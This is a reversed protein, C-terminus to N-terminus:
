KLKFTWGEPTFYLVGPIQKGSIFAAAKARYNGAGLGTLGSLFNVFHKRMDHCPCDEVRLLGNGSWVSVSGNPHKM